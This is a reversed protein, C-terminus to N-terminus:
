GDIVGRLTLYGLLETLPLGLGTFYDGDIRSFLRVGEEELKYVGVSQGASQWNRELYGSLYEESLDRMTLQVRGVHRWVPRGAECVVAASFLSHQRGRLRRLQAAADDVNAAKSLTEGDLDLVQDCGIVLAATERLSIKRAKAEALADAVDRPAAGEAELSARIAAEDVRAPIVAHEVGARALLASRVPSASALILRM